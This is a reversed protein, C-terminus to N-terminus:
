LFKDRYRPAKYGWGSPTKNGYLPYSLDAALGHKIITDVDATGVWDKFGIIPDYVFTEYFATQNM